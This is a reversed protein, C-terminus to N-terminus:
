QQSINIFPNERLREVALDIFSRIKANARRGEVHVVSVPLPSGEYATLMPRLTGKSLEEGVQYSMLRTIGFGDLAASLAAINQNCRLRPSLKVTETTGAGSNQFEWVTKSEFTTPYIIDHECLESPYKPVGRRKIYRPSACVIRRVEGVKTAYLTSDKLHGIRIAVDLEEELLNTVRDYFMAKVSVAPNNNLYEQVIPIIHKQGFLVPATVTLVGKPKSYVGAAEAETM